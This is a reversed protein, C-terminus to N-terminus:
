QWGTGKSKMGRHSLLLHFTLGGVSSGETFKGGVRAQWKVRVAIYLMTGNDTLLFLRLFTVVRCIFYTKPALVYHSVVDHENPGAAPHPSRSPWELSRCWALSFSDQDCLLLAKYIFDYAYRLCLQTICFMEVNTNYFPTKISKMYPKPYLRCNKVGRWLCNILSTSNDTCIIFKWSRSKSFSAQRRWACGTKLPLAIFDNISLVVLNVAIM